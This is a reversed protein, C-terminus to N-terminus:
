ELWAWVKRRIIKNIHSQDVGFREALEQQSVTGAATRIYRVDDEKLRSTRMKSGRNSTGHGIKDLHNETPTKWSIHRPNVCGEHGKGCSHAAEHGDTPPKGHALICMVRSANSRGDGFTVQGYGARGRAFPWVLCDDGSYDIHSELWAMLAGTGTRGGLPDGHRKWRQYHKFCYGNATNYQKANGTCGYVRCQGSKPLNVKEITGRKLGRQYCPSCYGRTGKARRHANRNCGDVSCPKFDEAM